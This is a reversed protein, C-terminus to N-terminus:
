RRWVPREHALRARVTRHAQGPYGRILGVLDIPRSRSSMCRFAVRIATSISKFRARWASGFSKWRGSPIPNTTNRSCSAPSADENYAERQGDELAFACGGWDWRGALPPDALSLSDITLM